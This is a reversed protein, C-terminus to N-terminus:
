VTHLSELFVRSVVSRRRLNYVHIEATFASAHVVYPSAPYSFVVNEVDNTLESEPKPSIFNTSALVHMQGCSYNTCSADAYALLHEDGLVIDDGADDELGAHQSNSVHVGWILILLFKAVMM